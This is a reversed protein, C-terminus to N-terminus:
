GRPHSRTFSRPRTTPQQLRRERGPGATLAKKLTAFFNPSSGVPSASIDTVYRVENFRTPGLAGALNKAERARTALVPIETPWELALVKAVAGKGYECISKSTLWFLDTESGM